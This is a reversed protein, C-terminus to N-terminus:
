PQESLETMIEKLVDKWNKGETVDASIKEEASAPKTATPMKEDLENIRDIIEVPKKAIPTPLTRQFLPRESRVPINELASFYLRERNNQPSIGKTQYDFLARVAHMGLRKAPQIDLDWRDGVMVAEEPKTQAKELAWLFIEPEPKAYKLESSLAVIKHPISLKFSTIFDFDKKKQNAIIGIHYGHNLNRIVWSMEPIIKIYKNRHKRNFYEVQSRYDRFGKESLYKRAITLHPNPDDYKEKLAIYNDIVKKFTWNWDLKRLFMWLIEAYKFYLLDDTFIVNDLDFFITKIM